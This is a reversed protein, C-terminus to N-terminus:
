VPEGSTDDYLEPEDALWDFAGGAAAVGAIQQATIGESTVAGGTRCRLGDEMLERAAQPVSRREQRAVDELVRYFAAQVRINVQRLQRMPRQVAKKKKATGSRM